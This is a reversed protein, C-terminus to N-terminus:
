RSSSSARRRRRPAGQDSGCGDHERVRKRTFMCSVGASRASRRDRDDAGREVQALAPAADVHARGRDAVRAEVLADAREAPRDDVPAVDRTPRARPSRRPRGRVGAVEARDLLRALPDGREDVLRDPLPVQREHEAAVVRDRHAREAPHRLRAARARREPDVRVAVQVPRAGRRRPLTCPMGSAAASPAPPRRRRRRRRATATPSRAASTPTRESSGPSRSSISSSSTRTKVILSISRSPTSRTM